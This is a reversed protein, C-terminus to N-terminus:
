TSLTDNIYASLTHQGDSLSSLNANSNCDASVTAGADLTYWCSSVNDGSGSLQMAITSYNYTANTPSTIGITLAANAAGAAAALLLIAFICNSGFRGLQEM